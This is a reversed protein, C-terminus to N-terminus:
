HGRKLQFIVGLVGTVLVALMYVYFHWELGDFIGAEIQGYLIFENPFGGIFISLGRIFLYAGLFSTLYVLIHKDYKYALWGFIVAGFFSMCGMLVWNAYFNVLIFSYISFGLAFGAVAGALMIGTRTVRKLIVGVVAALAIALIFLVIALTIQGTSAAKGLDLAVFGGFLSFLIMSAFFTVGSGISVLVWVFYKGGWLTVLAGFVLLIIGIAWPNNSLYRIISTVQLTPCGLKHSFSLKPYCPDSADVKAGTIQNASGDCFIEVSTQYRVNSNTPCADGGKFEYYM